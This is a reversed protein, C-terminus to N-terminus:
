DVFVKAKKKNLNSRYNDDICFFCATKAFPASFFIFKVNFLSRTRRPQDSLGHIEELNGSTARARFRPPQCHCRARRDRPPVGGGSRIVARLSGERGASSDRWWWWCSGRRETRGRVAGCRVGMGSADRLRVCRKLERSAEGTTTEEGQEKRGPGRMRCEGRARAGSIRAGSEGRRRGTGRTRRRAPRSVKTDPEEDRNTAPSQLRGPSSPWPGNWRRRRVGPPAGVV